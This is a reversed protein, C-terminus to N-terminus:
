VPKRGAAMNQAEWLLRLKERVKRKEREQKQLEILSFSADYDATYGLDRLRTVHEPRGRPFPSRDIGFLELAVHVM